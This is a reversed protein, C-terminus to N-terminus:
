RKGSEFLYLSEKGFYLENEIFFSPIGFVGRAVSDNTNNLLAQKVEESQSAKMLKEYPLAALSLVQAVIDMDGMNKQESWMASFVAEIYQKYISQSLNEAAVAGRMLHLTNIPFYPNMKFLDALQHRLIFRKMELENYQAKNKIDKTAIMPSVNGTLKFIGGLLVPVYRFTLDSHKEIEAIRLHALYANPSGFDFLFEICQSM